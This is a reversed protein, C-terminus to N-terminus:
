KRRMLPYEPDWPEVVKSSILLINQNEASFSEWLFYSCTSPRYRLTQLKDNNTCLLSKLPFLILIKSRPFSQLKANELASSCDWLFSSTRTLSQLKANIKPLLLRLAEPGAWVPTDPPWVASWGTKFAISKPQFWEPHNRQDYTFDSFIQQDHTRSNM